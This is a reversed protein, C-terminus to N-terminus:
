KLGETIRWDTVQWTDGSRVLTVVAVMRESTAPGFATRWRATWAVTARAADSTVSREMVKAESLKPHYKDVFTLFTPPAATLNSSGTRGYNAAAVMGTLWDTM